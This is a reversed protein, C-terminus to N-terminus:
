SNTDYFCIIKLFSYFADHYEEQVKVDIRMTINNILDISNNTSDCIIEYNWIKDSLTYEIVRAIIECANNRTQEDNVILKLNMRKEFEDDLTETFKLVDFEFINQFDNYVDIIFNM